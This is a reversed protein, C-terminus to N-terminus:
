GAVEELEDIRGKLREEVAGVFLNMPDVAKDM